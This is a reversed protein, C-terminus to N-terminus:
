NNKLQKGYEIGDIYACLKDFLERKKIRGYAIPTTVGGGENMIRHVCAGGYAYSIHYNGINAKFKGSETKSYPTLPSNTIKNLYAAKAELMKNTIRQM